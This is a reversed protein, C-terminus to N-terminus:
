FMVQLAQSQKERQRKKVEREQLPVVIAQRIRNSEPLAKGLGLSNMNRMSDSHRRQCMIARHAEAQPKQHKPEHIHVAKEPQKGFARVIENPKKVERPIQQLAVPHKTSGIAASAKAPASILFNHGNGLGNM